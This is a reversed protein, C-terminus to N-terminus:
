IEALLKTDAWGSLQIAIMRTQLLFLFFLCFLSLLSNSIRKQLVCAYILIRLFLFGHSDTNEAADANLPKQKSAVVKTAHKM